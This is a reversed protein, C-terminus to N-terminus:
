SFNASQRWTQLLTYFIALVTPGIFLGLFGFTLFGGLVGLFILLLPMSVGFGVLFPRIINDALSVFLGWVIMFVAWWTAGISFLWWAAGGWIVVLLIGIQSLAVLLALFALVDPNPVGALFLGVGLAIAQVLATGVVGYAVGRVSAAASYMIKGGFPGAFRRAISELIERIADGRLWFMTALALALILQLLAQAVARGLDVVTKRLWQSYPGLIEQIQGHVLKSWLIDIRTGIVPLKGIWHPLEPASNLFTQGRNFLEVSQAGLRPAMMIAPVVIFAVTITVLIAAALANSFGRRLLWDHVPWTSIVIIGGFLIATVFPRLVLAVGALLALFLFVAIIREILLATEHINRQPPQKM